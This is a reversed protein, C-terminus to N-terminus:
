KKGKERKRDESQERKDRLNLEERKVNRQIKTKTLKPPKKKTEMSWFKDNNEPRIPSLQRAKQRRCRRAQQRM